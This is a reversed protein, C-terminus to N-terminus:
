QITMLQFVTKWLWIWIKKQNCSITMNKPPSMIYDYLYM